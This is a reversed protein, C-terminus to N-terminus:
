IREIIPGQCGILKIAFGGSECKCIEFRSVPKLGFEKKTEHPDIGARNLEWRSAVRKCDDPPDQPPSPPPEAPDSEPSPTQAERSSKLDRTLGSPPLPQPDHPVDHTLWWWFDDLSGCNTFLCAIFTGGVFGGAAALGGLIVSGIGPNVPRAVVPPFVPEPMTPRNGDPDIMNIPDNAAYTFFNTDGGSFLASDKTTWRGSEADYDRAGLRVLGTAADYLGGGFGFPQFGPNTDLLVRGYEDYDLRQVVTGSNSDVVLRVSGIRDTLVAYTTGSKAFYAPVWSNGVYVFRTVVQGSADLEAAPGKAVGYLWGNTLVGNMIRGVRRGAADVIYQIHDGNPLLVALLNGAVDY